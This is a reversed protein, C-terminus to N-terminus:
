QIINNRNSSKRIAAWVELGLENCKEVVHSGVFGNAGTVLVKQM